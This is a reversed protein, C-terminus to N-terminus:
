RSVTDPLPDPQPVSRPQAGLAAPGAQPDAREAGLAAPEAEPAAPGLSPAPLTITFTSGRGVESWVSVDGGHNACVHKVISLGLGTGGTARSRAADVRYFREFIRGQEADPIGHGQDSVIIERGGDDRRRAHVAVKTDPGSYAVANAILNRVATVLLHSDGWVWCDPDSRVVIRIGKEEAAVQVDAAARGVVEGLQVQQPDLLRDESQLKSLEVLDNVLSALRRSEKQMRKAFRNVAAPEDKARRVAEALLSLGGLPTKLEHSVNAVFDRRVEEVYHAQSQDEVLLLVYESGLPSAQASILRRAGQPGRPLWLREECPGAGTRAARALALLSPHAVEEGQLLGRTQASPSAAVVADASDLVIGTSTLAVLLQAVEAPLADAPAPAQAAAAAERTRQGRLALVCLLIGALLGACAAVVVDM